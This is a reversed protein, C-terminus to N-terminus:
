RILRDDEIFRAIHDSRQLWDYKEVINRCNEAKKLADEYDNLVKHIKNQLDTTNDAEFFTVMNEDVIERISQLDSAIIPRGSAIEKL